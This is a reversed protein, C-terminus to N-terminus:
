TLTLSTSFLNDFGCSRNCQRRYSINNAFFDYAIYGTILYVVFSVGLIDNGGYRMGFVFYLIVIFALPDLIAWAFGFYNKVYRNRFDRKTLTNILNRNLYIQKIFDIGESFLKKIM